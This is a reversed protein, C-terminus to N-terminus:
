LKVSESKFNLRENDSNVCKSVVAIYCLTYPNHIRNYQLKRVFM